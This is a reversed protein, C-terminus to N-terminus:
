IYSLVEVNFISSFTVFVVGASLMYFAYNLPKTSYNHSLGFMPLLVLSLGMITVGMYGGVILYVHAKLLVMVNVSLLGAYTLAMLIGFILGALLFVNAIILSKIVLSFTVVKKLTIFINLTFISIAVLVLTGGYPLFATNFYFGVVMLITGILLLPWIIYFLEVAWHGVELVVPVLQAMAGFIIMMVFGLLFLHVWSLVSLDLNNIESVDFGLTLLACLFYVLTGVIFYPVVLKFPPAFDQTINVM